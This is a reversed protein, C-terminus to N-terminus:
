PACLFAREYVLSWPGELGPGFFDAQRLRDAFPGLVPLAADLAARSFDIGVVDLGAEALFRVDHGSGCGPALVRGKPRHGAVHERLRAPV